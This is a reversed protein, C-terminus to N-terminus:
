DSFAVKGTQEEEDISISKYYRIEKIHGNEDKEKVFYKFLSESRLLESSIKLLFRKISPQKVVTRSEPMLNDIYCAIFMLNEAESMSLQGEKLEEIALEFLEMLSEKKADKPMKRAVCVLLDKLPYIKAKCNAVAAALSPLELCRHNM